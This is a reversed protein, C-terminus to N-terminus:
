LYTMWGTFDSRYNWMPSWPPTSGFSLCRGDGLYMVVHTPRGRPAWSTVQWGYFGLDGPKPDRVQRGNWWLAGTDGVGSGRNGSPDPLNAALYLAIVTSSCDFRARNETAFLDTPFPRRQAYTYEFRHSLFREAQTVLRARAQAVETANERDALVKLHSLVWGQERATLHPWLAKWASRGFVDGNVRGGSARLNYIKKWRTVDRAAKSGYTGARNGLVPLGRARLDRQVGRKMATVAINRAGRRIIPTGDPPTTTKGM